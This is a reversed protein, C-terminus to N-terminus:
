APQKALVRNLVNFIRQFDVDMLNSGSPLCLGQEFLKESTGDGYFACGEFVQQLHM